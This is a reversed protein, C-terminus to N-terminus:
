GKDASRLVEILNQMDSGPIYGRIIEDEIVFTPTGSIALREGLNRTIRLREDIRPDDLRAQIADPDLGADAALRALSAANVPGRYHMLPEHLARYGEAGLALETAIAYRAATLSDEGLIPFEKVVLHINGDKELLEAIEDHARKCYGCRYDLFEVMTIDGDPNGFTVSFGDNRLADRETIVAEAEARAAATAREQELLIIAERVMEPNALLAQRVAEVFEPSPTEARIPAAAFSACLLASLAIRRM